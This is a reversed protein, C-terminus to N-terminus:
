TEVGEHPKLLNGSVRWGRMPNSSTGALQYHVGEEKWHLYITPMMSHSGELKSPDLDFNHIGKSM